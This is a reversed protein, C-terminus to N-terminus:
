PDREERFASGLVPLEVGYKAALGDNHAGFRALIRAADGANWLPRSAAEPRERDASAARNQALLERAAHQSVRRNMRGPLAFRDFAVGRPGQVISVFEALLRDAGADERYRRATVGGLGAVGALTDLLEVYDFRFIWRVAFTFAGRELVVDLFESFELDLGFLLLTLYLSQAYEGQPRLYAIFEVDYGVDRATRALERLAAPKVHLYEFDESSLVVVDPQARAIETALADM